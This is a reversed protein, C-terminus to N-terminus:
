TRSGSSAGQSSRFGLTLTSAQIYPFFIISLKKQLFTTGFSYNKTLQSLNKETCYRNLFLIIKFKSFYIAVFLTNCFIKGRKTVQQQQTRCRPVRFPFFDPDPPWSLCAPNTVRTVHNQIRISKWIYDPDPSPHARCVLQFCILTSCILQVNKILM